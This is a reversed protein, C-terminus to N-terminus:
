LFLCKFYSVGYTEVKTRLKYVRPKFLVSQIFNESEKKDGSEMLQAIEDTKKGLVKEGLESFFTVWRNSTWDGIMM